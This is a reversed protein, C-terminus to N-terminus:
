SLYERILKEFRWQQIRPWEHMGSCLWLARSFALDDRYQAIDPLRARKMITSFVKLYANKQEETFRYQAYFEYDRTQPSWEISILASIVDYGLPGTFSDEIDIIGLTYMNAPNCDGHQLAGPLKTLRELATDFRRKIAKAYAPLERSLDDIRVGIAFEDASWRPTRSKLQASFLKKTVSTFELFHEDAIRASQSFDDQFIARFSRDGLATEIFYADGNLEGEAIIRAVPYKAKEMARHERIDRQIAEKGGIRLYAGDGRYISAGSRQTGLYKFSYGELFLSSEAGHM